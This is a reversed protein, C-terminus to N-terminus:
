PILRFTSKGGTNIDAYTHTGNLLCTGSLMYIRNLGTEDLVWTDSGVPKLALGTSTTLTLEGNTNIAYVYNRTIPDGNTENMTEEITDGNKLGDFCVSPEHENLCSFGIYDIYIKNYNTKLHNCFKTKNQSNIFATTGVFMADLTEAGILNWNSIDQNFSTANIFVGRMDTVSRTNWRSIDQNFSTADKFMSNMNTVSRTNWRSIDENFSTKDEFLESMDTVASVDWNSINGYKESIRKKESPDNETWTTVALELEDKTEFPKKFILISSDGPEGEHHDIMSFALNQLKKIDNDSGNEFSSTNDGFYYKIASFVLFIIFVIIILTKPTIVIDSKLPKKDTFRM